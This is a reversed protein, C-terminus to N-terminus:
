DEIIDNEDEMQINTDDNITYDVKNSIKQMEKLDVTYGVNDKFYSVLDACNPNESIDQETGVLSDSM